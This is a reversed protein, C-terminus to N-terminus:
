SGDSQLRTVWRFEGGRFSLMVRLWPAYMEAPVVRGDGNVDLGRQAYEAQQAQASLLRSM